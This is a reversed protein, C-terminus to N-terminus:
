TMSKKPCPPVKDKSWDGDKKQLSHNRRSAVEQDLDLKPQDFAACDPSVPLNVAPSTRQSLLKMRHRRV